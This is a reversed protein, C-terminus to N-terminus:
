SASRHNQGEYKEDGNSKPNGIDILKHITEMVEKALGVVAYM